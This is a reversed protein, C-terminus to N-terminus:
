HQDRRYFLFLNDAGWNGLLRPGNRAHEGQTQRTERAEGAEELLAVYMYKPHVPENLNDKPTTHQSLWSGAVSGRHSWGEGLPLQSLGWVTDKSTSKSLVRNDYFIVTILTYMLPCCLGTILEATQLSPSSAIVSGPPRAGSGGGLPWCPSCGHHPHTARTWRQLPPSFMKLFRVLVLQECLDFRPSGVCVYSFSM